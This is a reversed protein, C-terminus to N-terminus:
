APTVTSTVSGVPLFPRHWTLKRVTFGGADPEVEYEVYTEPWTTHSVTAAITVEYVSYANETEDYVEATFVVAGHLCPSIAPPTRLGNIHIGTPKFPESKGTLDGDTPATKQWWEEVTVRVPGAYAPVQGYTAVTYRTYGTGAQYETLNRIDFDTLIAPWVMSLYRTFTRKNSSGVRVNVPENVSLWLNRSQQTVTIMRGDSGLATASPASTALTWTRTRSFADGSKTDVLNDTQTVTAAATTTVTLLAVLSSVEQIQVRQVFRGNGPTGLASVNTDAIDPIGASRLAYYSHDLVPGWIEDQRTAVVPATPLAPLFVYASYGAPAEQPFGYVYTGWEQVRIRTPLKCDAYATGPTPVLEPRIKTDAVRIVFCLAAVNPLTLTEFLRPEQPDM